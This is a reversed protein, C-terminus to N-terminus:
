NFNNDEYMRHTRPAVMKEKVDGRYVQQAPNNVSKKAGAKQEQAAQGTAQAGGAPIPQGNAGLPVTLFGNEDQEFYGAQAPDIPQVDPMQISKSYDQQEGNVVLQAHATSAFVVTLLLASLLQKM